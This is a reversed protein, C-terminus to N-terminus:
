KKLEKILQRLGTLNPEFPKWNELTTLSKYESLINDSFDKLFDSLQQKVRGINSTDQDNLVALYDNIIKQSNADSDATHQFHIDLVKELIDKGNTNRSQLVYLIPIYYSDLRKRTETENNM